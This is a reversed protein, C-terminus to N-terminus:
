LFASLLRELAMTFPGQMMPLTLLMGILGVGMTIPFGIAFVNMQSAVRSIVGLVLNVFLLMAVLPLAIWTGLRFVEVGWAQPQAARLFAFPEPSAPFVQFSQMVAAIVTLHGNIVIFLWAVMTGFFRGSATGQSATMPDFFGAFNLGMQLGIMEGALEVAGFVVRVAFGLSVGILVQQAVLMLAAPSDLAVVPMAPLSVQACLAILFSLAVRVRMPVTRTGLVPMASFLALVRIFPWLFPTVWALVQAESFTLM